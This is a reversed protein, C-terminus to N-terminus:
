IYWWVTLFVQSKEKWIVPGSLNGCPFALMEIHIPKKIVYCVVESENWVQLISQTLMWIYWWSPLLTQSKEKWIAPSSVNHCPFALMEISPTNNWGHLHCVVEKLSPLIHDSIVNLQMCRWSTLFILNRKGLLLWLLGCPSLSCRFTGDHM